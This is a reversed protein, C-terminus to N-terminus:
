PAPKGARGALLTALASIDASGHGFRHSLALLSAGTATAPLAIGFRDALQLALMLDKRMLDTTFAPPVSDPTLFAARKYAVFPSAVASSELVDYAAEAAVGGAGALALCEAISQNTLAIVLNLALKMTAGAGSPGLRYQAKSLAALVPQARAFAAEDGGVLATLQGNAALATSGSVPADLLEIGQEHAQRALAAVASPGITSMELAIAGRPLGALLGDAGLYVAAAAQADSVMTIAFEAGAAAAAPTAAIRAGSAQLAGARDPSRNYVSLRHGAALLRQAMPLGMRGLGVFAITSM